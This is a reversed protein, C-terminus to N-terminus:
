YISDNLLKLLNKNENQTINQSVTYNSVSKKLTTM